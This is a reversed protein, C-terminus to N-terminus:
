HTGALRLMKLDQGKLAGAGAKDTGHDTYTAKLLFYGKSSAKVKPLRFAGEAGRFYDANADKGAALIWRAIQQADKESLDPHTPMVATGWIGTSGKVIHSAMSVLDEPKKYKGAIDAFSPGIVKSRVAHCNYCDGKKFLTYGASEKSATNRFAAAKLPDPFYRLEMFVETPPIEEYKSEGDEKDSVTVTYPVIVDEGVVGGEAPSTIQVVPATNGQARRPPATFLSPAAFLFTVFPLSRFFMM